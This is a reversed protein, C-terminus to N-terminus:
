SVKTFIHSCKENTKKFVKICHSPFLFLILLYCVFDMNNSSLESFVSEKFQKQIRKVEETFIHWHILFNTQTVM